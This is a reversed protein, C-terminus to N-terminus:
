RFIKESSLEFDEFQRECDIFTVLYSILGNKRVTFGTIMRANQEPDTISYVIEGIKFKPIITM